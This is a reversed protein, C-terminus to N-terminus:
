VTVPVDTAQVPTVTEVVAETVTVLAALGIVPVGDIHMPAVVENLSGVAPPVHLLVGAETAVTLGVPTTEPKDPPM